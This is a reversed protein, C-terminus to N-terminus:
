QEVSRAVSLLKSSLKLGGSEAAAANIDFRVRRNDIVFAIMGGDRIFSAGDGVTLVGSGMERVMKRLENEGEAFFVLQCTQPAPPASLRRVIIRRNNVVEGQVIAELASGFRDKGLLCMAFPSDPAAFATAPWEIFKTFNLLFAAKVQYELAVQATVRAPLILCAACGIICLLRRYRHYAM